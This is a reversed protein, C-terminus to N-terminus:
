AELELRYAKILEAGPPRFDHEPVRQFGLREYLRVAERMSESTYLGLAPFGAARARRACEQVLAEGVGQSRAQAAVALVRLEPWVMRGGASPEGRAPPFLLVSGLLTGDPAAAVIREAPGSADLAGQIAQRLGAWATPAMITAYQEYAALSLDRLAGREDERADRIHFTENM